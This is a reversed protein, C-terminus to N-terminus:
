QGTGIRMVPWMALDEPLCPATRHGVSRHVRPRKAGEPRTVPKPRNRARARVGRRAQRRHIRGPGPRRLPPTARGPACHPWSKIMTCSAARLRPADGAALKWCRGRPPWCACRKSRTTRGGPWLRWTKSTTPPAHRAEPRPRWRRLRRRGQEQARAAPQGRDRPTRPRSTTGSRRKPRSRRGLRRM